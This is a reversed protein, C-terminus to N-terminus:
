NEILMASRSNLTISNGQGLGLLSGIFPTVPQFQYSVSVRVHDDEGNGSQDLTTVTVSPSPCGIDIGIAYHCVAANVDNVVLPHIIGVRAGERASNNLVSSYIVVRGLDFIVVLFMFLLPFIIAYEVLDQGFELPNKLKKM